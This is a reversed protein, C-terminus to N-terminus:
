RGKIMKLGDSRPEDAKSGESGNLPLITKHLALVQSADDICLITTKFIEDMEQVDGADAILLARARNPGNV